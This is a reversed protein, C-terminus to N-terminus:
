PEPTIKYMANYKRIIWECLFNVMRVKPEINLIEMYVVVMAVLKKKYPLRNLKEMNYCIGEHATCRKFFRSENIVSWRFRTRERDLFWKAFSKKTFTDQNVHAAALKQFNVFPINPDHDYMQYGNVIENIKTKITTNKYLTEEDM